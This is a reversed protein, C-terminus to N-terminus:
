WHYTTEKKEIKRGCQPCFNMECSSHTLTGRLRNAKDWTERVLKVKLVSTFSRVSEKESHQERHKREENEEKILACMKCKRM